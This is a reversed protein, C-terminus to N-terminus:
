IGAGRGRRARAEDGDGRPCGTLEGVVVSGDLGRFRTLTLRLKGSGILGISGLGGLWQLRIVFIIILIIGLFGHTLIVM